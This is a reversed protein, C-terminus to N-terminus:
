EEPTVEEIAELWDFWAAPDATRTENILQIDSLVDGVQEPKGRLVWCKKLFVLMVKYADLTTLEKEM